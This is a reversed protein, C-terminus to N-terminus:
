ILESLRCFILIALETSVKGADVVHISSKCRSLRCANLLRCTQLGRMSLDGHVGSESLEIMKTPHMGGRTLM